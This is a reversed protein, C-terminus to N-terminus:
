NMLVISPDVVMNKFRNLFIQWGFLNLTDNPNDIESDPVHKFEVETVSANGRGDVRCEIEFTDFPFDFQIWAVGGSEPASEVNLDDKCLGHLNFLADVCEVIEDVGDHWASKFGFTRRMYDPYRERYQHFM